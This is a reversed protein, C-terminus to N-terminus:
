AALEVLSIWNAVYVMQIIQFFPLQLYISFEAVISDIYKFDNWTIQFVPMRYNELKLTCTINLIVLVKLQSSWFIQVMHHAWTWVNVDGHIM